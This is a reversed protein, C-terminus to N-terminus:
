TLAHQQLPTGALALITRSVAENYEGTLRAQGATLFGPLKSLKVVPVKPNRLYLRTWRSSFVIVPNVWVSFGQSRLSNALLVANGRAQSSISSIPFRRRPSRLWTHRGQYWKEGYCMVSGSYNKTEIVFVGSPGVVVHDINGRQGPLKM